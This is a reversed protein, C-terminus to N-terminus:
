KKYVVNGRLLLGECSASDPVLWYVVLVAKHGGHHVFNFNLALWVQLGDFLKGDTAVANKSCKNHM